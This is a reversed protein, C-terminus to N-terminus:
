ETVVFFKEEKIAEPPWGRRKVIGKTNEIMGPNGCLYIRTNEPTLNWMDTYKRVLEDVRGVEGSWKKELYPRSITPVYTLWPCEAAAHTLEDAYGLEPSLSAGELLYLKHDGHFGGNKTEHLIHRFFSVFPSVGTVTGILLHNTRPGAVDLTLHGKAVKRLTLPSGKRSAYLLPTLQGRPVLEIFFELHKEHPASAISYPREVKKEGATIGLTAYQGPLYKFEGGPDVHMVWLDHSIERRDIIQATFFKDSGSAM